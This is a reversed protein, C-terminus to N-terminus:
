RRQAGADPIGRSFLVELRQVEASGFAGMAATEPERVMARIQGTVPDLMITMPEPAVVSEL